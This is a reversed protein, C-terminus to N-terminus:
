SAPLYAGLQKKFESLQSQKEQTKQRSLDASTEAQKLKEDMESQSHVAVNRDIITKASSVELTVGKQQTTELQSQYDLYDGKVQELATAAKIGSGFAKAQKGIVTFRERSLDFGAGVLKLARTSGEYIGMGKDFHSQTVQPLNDPPNLPDSILYSDANFQPLMGAVSEPTFGILGPVTVATNSTSVAGNGSTRSLPSTATQSANNIAHSITPVSSSDAKTVKKQSGTAVKEAVKKAASKARVRTERATKLSPRPM